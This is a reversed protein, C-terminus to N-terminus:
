ENAIYSDSSQFYIQIESLERFFYKEKKLEQLDYYLMDFSIWVLFWGSPELVIRIISSLLNNHLQFSVISNVVM